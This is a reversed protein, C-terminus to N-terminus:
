RVQEKYISFNRLRKKHIRGERELIIFSKTRDVFKDIIKTGDRLTVLVRKGTHCGTHGLGM